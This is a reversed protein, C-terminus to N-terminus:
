GAWKLRRARACGLLDFSPQKYEERIEKSTIMSMRRANWARLSTAVKMTLDLCECGYVLVSVVGAEYLRLKLGVSLKSSNWVNGLQRFRDAAQEMRMERGLGMDGDASFWVCLYLYEL